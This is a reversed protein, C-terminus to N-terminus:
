QLFMKTSLPIRKQKPRDGPYDEFYVTYNSDNYLVRFLESNGISNAIQKSSGWSAGYDATDNVFEFYSDKPEQPYNRAVYGYVKKSIKARGVSYHRSYTLYNMSLNLALYFFLFLYLLEKKEPLLRSIGLSFWVLPLGLELAFKHQPLFIVPLLSVVFLIGCVVTVRDVRKIQRVLCYFLFGLNAILLGLIIPWWARLDSFFRPIPRLGSGIYDVLLEPAGLTWLFYWMLTNGARLLSFNWVYTEGVAGGFQFLRLYLYPALVIIFPIWNYIKTKKRLWDIVIIVVPIVVASEKSLLALIFFVLSKWKQNNLYSLLCRSTFIVLTIEQFASLFYLRTFNSVSFGYVLTALLAKKDSKLLLTALKNVLYVSYGFCILVFLHFPLPNLGFLKHFLFFFVQTPLPRYFAISQPTKTFSFFNLFENLSGVSSVRLHFWDDASFFTFISAFYIFCSFIIIQLAKNRYTIKM